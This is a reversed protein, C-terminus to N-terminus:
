WSFLRTLQQLSGASLGHPSVRPAPSARLGSPPLSSLVALSVDWGLWGGALGGTSQLQM